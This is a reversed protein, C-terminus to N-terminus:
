RAVPNQNEEAALLHALWPYRAFTKGACIPRSCTASAVYGPHLAMCDPFATLTQTSTRLLVTKHGILPLMAPLAAGVSPPIAGATM